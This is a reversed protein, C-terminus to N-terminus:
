LALDSIYGNTVYSKVGSLTWGGDVRKATSAIGAVDSGAGPETNGLCILTEGRAASPLYLSKQDPSGFLTIGNTGLSVHVLVAVGVGPSITSLHEQMIAEKL